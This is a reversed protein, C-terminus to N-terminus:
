HIEQHLALSHFTQTSVALVCVEPQVTQKPHSIELHIELVNKAM